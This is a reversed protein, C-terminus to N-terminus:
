EGRRPNFKSMMGIDFIPKSAGSWLPTNSSSLQSRLSDALAKYRSLKHSLNVSYPGLKFSVEKALQAIIRDCCHIAAQLPDDGVKTLEFLIEEDQLLADEQSTDGIYYRVQYLSSEALQEPVYTWTM